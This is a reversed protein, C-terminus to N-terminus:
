NEDDKWVPELPTRIRFGDSTKARVEEELGSQARRGTCLTLSAAWCQPRLTLPRSGLSLEVESRSWSGLRTTGRSQAKTEGDTGLPPQHQYDSLGRLAQSSTTQM